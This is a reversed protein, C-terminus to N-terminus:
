NILVTFISQNCYNQSDRYNYYKPLQNLTTKNLVNNLM